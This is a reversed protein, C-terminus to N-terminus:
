CHGNLNQLSSNSIPALKFEHHISLTPTKNPMWLGKLALLPWWILLIGWWSYDGECGNKPPLTAHCGLTCSCLLNFWSRCNKLKLYLGVRPSRYYKIIRSFLSLLKIHNGVVNRDYKLRPTVAHFNWFSVSVSILCFDVMSILPFSFYWYHLAM